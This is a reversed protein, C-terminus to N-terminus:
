CKTQESATILNLFFSDSCKSNALIHLTAIRCRLWLSLYLLQYWIVSSWLKGTFISGTVVKGFESMCDMCNKDFCHAVIKHFWQHWREKDSVTRVLFCPYSFKAWLGLGVQWLLKCNEVLGKRYKAQMDDNGRLASLHCDLSGFNLMQGTDKETLSLEWQLFCEQHWVSVLNVHCQQWHMYKDSTTCFWLHGLWIPSWPQWKRSDGGRFWVM